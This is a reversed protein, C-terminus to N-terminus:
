LSDGLTNGQAEGKSFGETADLEHDDNYTLSMDFFSTRSPRVNVTVKHDPPEIVVYAVIRLTFAVLATNVGMCEMFFAIAKFVGFVVIPTDVEYLLSHM